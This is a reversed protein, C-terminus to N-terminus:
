FDNRSSWLQWAFHGIIDIKRCKELMPVKYVSGQIRLRTPDKLREKLETAIYMNAFIQRIVTTLTSTITKSESFFIIYNGRM